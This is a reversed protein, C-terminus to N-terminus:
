PSNRFVYMDGLKYGFVIDQNCMNRLPYKLSKNKMEMALISKCRFKFILIGGELTRIQEKMKWNGNGRYKHNNASIRLDYFTYM